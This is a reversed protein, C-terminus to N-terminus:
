RFVRFVPSSQNNDQIMIMMIVKNSNGENNGKCLLGIIGAFESIVSLCNPDIVSRKVFNLASKRVDKGLYTSKLVKVDQTEKKTNKFKRISVGFM